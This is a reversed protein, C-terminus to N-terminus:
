RPDGRLPADVPRRGGRVADLRRPGGGGGRRRRRPRRRDARRLAGARPGRDVAPRRRRGRLGPAAARRPGGGPRRAGARGERVHRRRRGRHAHAVGARGPDDGRGGQRRRPGAREARGAPRPRHADDRHPRPEIRAPDGRELHWTRLEARPPLEIRDLQEVLTEFSARRETPAEIIITNTAADASVHVEKPKQLHPLPRGRRDMPMPPQPYLRDLAPALDAARARKLPFIMTEREAGTEGSRNVSEVFARIDDFVSEHAAVILTNTGADADIEVPQERRQEPPRAAYRQRLLGALQVADAARIQLLRLPPLAAPEFTDLESVAREILAHQAPEAVVYLSNTREIVEVTPAPVQRGAEVPATRALLEELPGRVDAARAQRLPLLRGTRAPPLLQRAEALAREWAAVSETRGHVAVTGTLADYRVDPAPLADAALRDSTLRYAEDARALLQEPQEVAGLPIVRFRYDAPQPRDLTAILPELVAFQDPEATVLLARLADVPEIEPAAFATGDRPRLLSAAVSRLTPAVASPSASALEVQRTEREVVSATEVLRLADAFRRQAEAGGIVTVTRAEVDLELDLAFRPDDGDVQRDYLVRSRDVAARPDAVTLQLLRAERDVRPARDLAPVVARIAEVDAPPGAVVLSRGDPGAVIKTAVAQRGNLLAGLATIAAAPEAHELALVTITRDQDGSAAGGGDIERLLAEGEAIATDDGVITVRGLEDLAIVTPREAEPLTQYVAGLREAAERPSLMALAFTRITRGGGVAPVDLLDITEALQDIRSRVGKAIISNTRDDATISLGPLSEEEVKVQKGEQNIVYKEVKQSMLAKLPEMLAEARTHRIPFIEVAGEPDERDLEEVIALLRRVQAATETLVLANQQEMATVGGYEAVLDKLKEALPAALAISLPRVVTIVQDPTVDAPLTGVFTPIDERAMDTLKQLYLMDDSVRLMVGKSQLVINLVRLAEARDYTEPSLYDLTGEPPPTEWVVPLGTTRSFFDIVQEFTAGKFNFRIGDDADPPAQASAPAVAILLLLVSTVVHRM